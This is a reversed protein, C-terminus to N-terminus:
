HDDSTKRFIALEGTQLYLFSSFGGELLPWFYTSVYEENFAAVDSGSPLFFSQKWYLQRIKPLYKNGPRNQRILHKSESTGRCCEVLPLLTVWPTRMSLHIMPWIHQRERHAKLIPMVKLQATQTEEWFAARWLLRHGWKWILIARNISVPRIM